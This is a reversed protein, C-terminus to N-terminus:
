GVNRHRALLARREPEAALAKTSDYVGQSWFPWFVRQFTRVSEPQINARITQTILTGGAKEAVLTRETEVTGFDLKAQDHFVYDAAKLIHITVANAGEPHMVYTGGTKAPGDSRTIKLKVEWSPWGNIDTLVAWLAKIDSESYASNTMVFPM